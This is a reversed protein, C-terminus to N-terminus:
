VSHKELLIKKLYMGALYFLRGVFSHRELFEDKQYLQAPVPSLPQPTRAEFTKAFEYMEDQTWDGVSEREIIDLAGRYNPGEPLWMWMVADHKEEATKAKRVKEQYRKFRADEVELEAVYGEFGDSM